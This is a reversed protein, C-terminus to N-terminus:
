NDCVPPFSGILDPSRGRNLSFSVGGGGGQESPTIGSPDMCSWHWVCPGGPRWSVEAGM